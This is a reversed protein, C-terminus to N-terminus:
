TEGPGDFGGRGLFSQKETKREPLFAQAEDMTMLWRVLLDQETKPGQGMRHILYYWLRILHGVRRLAEGPAPRWLGLSEDVWRVGLSWRRAHERTCWKLGWGEPRPSQTPPWAVHPM